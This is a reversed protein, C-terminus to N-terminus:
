SYEKYAAWAVEKASDPLPPATEGCALSRPPRLPFRPRPSPPTLGTKGIQVLSSLQSSIFVYSHAGDM